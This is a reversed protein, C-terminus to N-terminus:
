TPELSSLHGIPFGSISSSDELTAVNEVKTGSKREKRISQFPWVTESEVEKITTQYTHEECKVNRLRPSRHHMTRDGKPRLIEEDIRM